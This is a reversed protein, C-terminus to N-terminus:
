REPQAREPDISTSSGMAPLRDPIPPADRTEASTIMPPDFPRDDPGVEVAAIKRIVEAGSVAQAFATYRGDLFATGERSLCVFVQSGNSNPDSARAMSLVGFDHRLDSKELDIMYGPGGSGTGSPDGVQIVFPRGDQLKAVVRHFIVDSYFGGDVLHMFNFVTNPAADPRMRFVIEGMTTELAIEQEVYIRYGSFTVERQASDVRGRAHLVPLRDDEFAPRAERDESYQMTAPDVNIAYNPTVLPQIVLPAGTAMEDLYLQALLVRKPVDLEWLAPFLSALGVRGRAAPASGVEVMTAADYLKLTLEGPFDEPAIVNVPVRRGLGFYLQDVTLQAVAPSVLGGLLVSFAFILSRSFPKIMM